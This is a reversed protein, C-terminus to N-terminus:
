QGPATQSLLDKLTTVVPKGEKDAGRLKITKDKFLTKQLEGLFTQLFRTEGPLAILWHIDGSTWEEPRLIIPKELSATLRADVDSSVRAWLAAAIPVMRAPPPPVGDKPAAVPSTGHAIQWQGSVIPPMVLWELDAIRLNRFKPDRIMLAVINSLITAFSAQQANLAATTEARTKELDQQKDSM